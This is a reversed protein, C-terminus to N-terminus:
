HCADSEKVSPGGSQIGQGSSSEVNKQDVSIANLKSVKNKSSEFRREEPEKRKKNPPEDQAKFADKANM